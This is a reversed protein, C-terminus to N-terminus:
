PNFQHLTEKKGVHLFQAFQTQQKAIKPVASHKVVLNIECSKPCNYLLLM